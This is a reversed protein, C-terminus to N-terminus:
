LLVQCISRQQKILLWAAVGTQVFVWFNPLTHWSRPQWTKRAFGRGPPHQEKIKHDANQLYRRVM